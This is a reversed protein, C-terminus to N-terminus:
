KNAASFNSKFYDSDIYFGIIKWNKNYKKLSIKITASANEFTANVVYFATISKNKGILISMNSEGKPESYTQLKGLARFRGFTMRLSNKSVKDTLDSGVNKIFENENWDSVIDM